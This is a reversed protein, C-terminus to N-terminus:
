LDFHIFILAFWRDQFSTVQMKSKEPKPMQVLAPENNFCSVIYREYIEKSSCIHFCNRCHCDRSSLTRGNLNKLNTILVYHHTLGKKLLFLDDFDTFCKKSVRNPVLKKNGDELINIKLDMEEFRSMQGIGMPMEFEGRPQLALPNSPSYTSPNTKLRRMSEGPPQLSPGYKLHRAAFANDVVITIM